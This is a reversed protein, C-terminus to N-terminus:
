VIGWVQSMQSSRHFQKQSESAVNEWGFWYALSFCPLKVEILPLAKRRTLSGFFLVYYACLSCFWLPFVFFVVMSLAHLHHNNPGLLGHFMCDIISLFTHSYFCSYKLSFHYCKFIKYTFDFLWPLVKCYLLMQHTYFWHVHLSSSYLVKLCLLLHFLTKFYLFLEFSLKPISKCLLILM